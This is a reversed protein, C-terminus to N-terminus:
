LDRDRARDRPLQRLGGREPHGRRLDPQDRRDVQDALHDARQEEPSQRVLEAALPQQDDREDEIEESGPQRREDGAVVGAPEDEEVRRAEHGPHPDAALIRGDVRRDVLHHRGPVSPPDVDPDVAAVPGARDEAREGREDEEVGERDIDAPAEREQHPGHERDDDDDDAARQRLARAPQHGVAAEVLRLPLERLDLLRAIL